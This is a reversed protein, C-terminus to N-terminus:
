LTLRHWLKTLGAGYNADKRIERLASIYGYPSILRAASTAILKHAVSLSALDNVDKEGDVM